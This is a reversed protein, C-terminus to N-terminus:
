SLNGDLCPPRVEEQSLRSDLAGLVAEFVDKMGTGAAWHLIKQGDADATNILEKVQFLLLLLLLM